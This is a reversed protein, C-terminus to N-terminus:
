SFRVKAASDIAITSIGGWLSFGAGSGPVMASTAAARSPAETVRLRLGAVAVQQRQEASGASGPERREDPAVTRAADALARHALHALWTGAKTTGQRPGGGGRNGAPSGDDHENIYTM